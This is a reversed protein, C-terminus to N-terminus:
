ESVKAALRAEATRAHEAALGATPFSAGCLCVNFLAKHKPTVTESM